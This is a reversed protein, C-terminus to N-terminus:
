KREDADIKRSVNEAKKRCRGPDGLNTSRRREPEQQQDATEKTSTHEIQHQDEKHKKM